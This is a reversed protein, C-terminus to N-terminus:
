DQIKKLCPFWNQVGFASWPIVALEGTMNRVAPIMRQGHEIDRGRRESIGAKAAATEQSDGQKRRKMYLEVQRSKIWKGPM